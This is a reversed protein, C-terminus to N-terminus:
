RCVRTHVPAKKWKARVVKRNFEEGNKVKLITRTENQGMKMAWPGVDSTRGASTPQSMFYTLIEPDASAPQGHIVYSEGPRSAWTNHLGHSIMIHCLHVDSHEPALESHPHLDLEIGRVVGVNIRGSASGNDNSSSGHPQMAPESTVTTASNFVSGSSGTVTLPADGTTGMHFPRGFVHDLKAVMILGVDPIRALQMTDCQVARGEFCGTLRSPRSFPRSFVPMHSLHHVTVARRSITKKTHLQTSTSAM